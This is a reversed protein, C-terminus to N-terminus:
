VRWLTTYSLDILGLMILQKQAQFRFKHRIVPNIRVTIKTLRRPPLLLLLLLLMRVTVVAITLVLFLSTTVDSAFMLM